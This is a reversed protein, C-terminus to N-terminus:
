VAPLYNLYLNTKRCLLVCWSGPTIISVWNKTPALYFEFSGAPTSKNKKTAISMLSTTNIIIEDVKNVDGHDDAGVRDNYNWIIVGAHPTVLKVGHM